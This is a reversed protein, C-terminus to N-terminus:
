KMIVEGANVSVDAGNKEVILFGNKDIDKILGEFSDSGNNVRVRKGIVCSRDRYKKMYDPAANEIRKIIEAALVCRPINIGTENWVSTAKDKLDSPFEIKGLNIGIGVVAYELGGSEFDASGETLIGCIKKGNLYLDNVWKIKVDNVGFSELAEAAAVAAYATLKMSESMPIDPRLILSMYLGAANPSVFLRNFRGRGRTQECAAVLSGSPAGLAALEKARTNTSEISEYVEITRDGLLCKLEAASLVDGFAFSYGGKNVGSISYGEAKLSNIAKWVANRSVGCKKALSEGSVTSKSEMLIKLVNEKVTM